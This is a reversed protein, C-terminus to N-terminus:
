GGQRSLLDKNVDRFNDRLRASLLVSAAMEQRLQSEFIARDLMLEIAKLAVAKRAVNAPKDYLSAYFDPNQFIKKALIELQAYYSPNEGIISGVEAPPVGLEVMVAALFERTKSASGPAALDSSGASKLAVISNFSNEAVGRKAAVSRLALYLRQAKPNKLLEKDIKRTLVNHGYLNNGLAMVDEEANNPTSAADHYFVDLTRPEDILRTYDIDINIRATKGGGTAGCALALGSDPEAPDYANDKPDCYTTTFKNWRALKDQDREVAGAMSANGLHRSLQRASLAEKNFRAIQETAALSRVNTGFWCFEESPQYDKHAQVQLEQMLRQTELQHKADIFTGIIMTQQAAVATMQETMLMVPPLIYKTFLEQMMWLQHAQFEATIYQKIIARGAVHFAEIVQEALTTDGPICGTCACAQAPRATPLLLTACFAATLFLKAAMKGTKNLFSSINM